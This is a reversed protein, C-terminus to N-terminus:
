CDTETWGNRQGSKKINQGAYPPRPSGTLHSGRNLSSAIEGDQSLYQNHMPYLPPFHTGGPRLCPAPSRAARTSHMDCISPTDLGSASGSASGLGTIGRPPLSNVPHGSPLKEGSDNGNRLVWMDCQVLLVLEYCELKVRYITSIHQSLLEPITPVGLQPSFGGRGGIASGDVDYDDYGNGLWAAQIGTCLHPDDPISRGPPM